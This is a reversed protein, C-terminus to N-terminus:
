RKITSNNDKGKNKVPRPVDPLEVPIYNGRIDLTNLLIPKAGKDSLIGGSSGTEEADENKPNLIGVKQLAIKGIEIEKKAM